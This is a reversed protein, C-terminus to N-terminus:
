KVAGLTFVLTSHGCFALMDWLAPIDCRHGFLRALFSPLAQLAQLFKWKESLKLVFPRALPEGHKPRTPARSASSGARRRRRGRIGRRGRTGRGGGAKALRAGRRGRAGADLRGAPARERPPPMSARPGRNKHKHTRRTHCRAFRVGWLTHAGAHLRAVGASHTFRWVRVCGCGCGSAGLGNSVYVLTRLFPPTPMM